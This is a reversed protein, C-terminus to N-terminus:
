AIKVLVHEVFGNLTGNEDVYRRIADELRQGVRKSISIKYKRFRFAETEDVKDNRPAGMDLEEYVKMRDAMEFADFGLASMDTQKEAMGILLDTLKAEDWENEEGTRNDAIALAHAQEEDLDVYRVPVAEMGLKKAARYRTHGACIEGNALRALIPNAFGYAEISKAVKTVGATTIKRPNQAWEHLEGLAIWRLEEVTGAARANKVTTTLATM